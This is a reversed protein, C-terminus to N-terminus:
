EWKRERRSAKFKLNEVTHEDVSISYDAGDVICGFYNDVVTYPDQGAPKVTERITVNKARSFMSEILQSINQHTVKNDYRVREIEITWSVNDLGQTIAGDFTQTSSSSIEPSCKVSTGYMLRKGGIIIQKDAAM